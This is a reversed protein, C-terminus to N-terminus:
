ETFRMVKHSYSQRGKGLNSVLVSLGMLLDKLWRPENWVDARSLKSGVNTALLSIYHWSWNRTKRLCAFRYVLMVGLLLVWKWHLTVRGKSKPMTVFGWPRADIGNYENQGCLSIQIKPKGFNWTIEEWSFEVDPTYLNSSCYIVDKAKGGM